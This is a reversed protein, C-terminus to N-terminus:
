AGVSGDARSPGPWCLPAPRWSPRRDTGAPSSASRAASPRRRIPCHAGPICRRPRRRSGPNVVKVVTTTVEGPGRWGGGPRSGSAPRGPFRRQVALKRCFIALIWPNGAGALRSALRGTNPIAHIAHHGGTSPRTRRIGEVDGSATVLRHGFGARTRGPAPSSRLPQASPISGAHLSQQVPSQYPPNPAPRALLPTAEVACRTSRSRNSASRPTM